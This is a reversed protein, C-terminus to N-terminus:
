SRQVEGHALPLADPLPLKAVDRVIKAWMLRVAVHNGRGKAWRIPTIGKWNKGMIDVDEKILMKIFDNSNNLIAAVLPSYGDERGLNPDAGDRILYVGTEVDNEEASVILENTRDM